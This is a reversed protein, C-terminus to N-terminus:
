GLSVTGFSDLGAFVAVDDAHVGGEGGSIAVWVLGAWVVQVWLVWTHGVRKRYTTPKELYINSFAKFKSCYFTGM